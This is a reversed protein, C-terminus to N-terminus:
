QENSSVKKEANRIMEYIWIRMNVKFTVHNSLINRGVYRPDYMHGSFPVVSREVWLFNFGKKTTKIFRLTQGDVIFEDGLTLEMRRMDSMFEARQRKIRDERTM